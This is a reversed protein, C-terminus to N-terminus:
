VCRMYRGSSETLQRVCEAAAICHHLLCTLCRVTCVEVGLGACSATSARCCDACMENCGHASRLRHPLVLLGTHVPLMGRATTASTTAWTSATPATGPRACESEPGPATPDCFTNSLPSSLAHACRWPAGHPGWLSGICGFHCIARQRRVPCLDNMFRVHPRGPPLIRVCQHQYYAVVTQYIQGCLLCSFTMACSCRECFTAAYGCTRLTM